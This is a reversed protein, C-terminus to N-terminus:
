LPMNDFTSTATDLIDVRQKNQVITATMASRRPMDTRIASMANNPSTVLHSTVLYNGLSRTLIAAGGSPQQIATNTVSSDSGSYRESQQNSTGGQAGISLMGQDSPAPFQRDVQRFIQSQPAVQLVM